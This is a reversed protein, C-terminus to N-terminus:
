CVEAKYQYQIKNQPHYQDPDACSILINEPQRFATDSWDQPHYSLDCQSLRVVPILQVVLQYNM